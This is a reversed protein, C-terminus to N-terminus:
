PLAAEYWYGVPDSGDHAYSMAMNCAWNFTEELQKDTSRFLPGQGEQPLVAGLAFNLSLGLCLAMTTKKTM